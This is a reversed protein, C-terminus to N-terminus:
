GFTQRLSWSGNPVVCINRVSVPASDDIVTDAGTSGRLQVNLVRLCTRLRLACTDVFGFLTKARWSCGHEGHARRIIRTAVLLWCRGLTTCHLDCAM